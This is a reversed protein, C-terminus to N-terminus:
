INSNNWISNCNKRNITYIIKQAITEQGIVAARIEIELGSKYYGNLETGKPEIIPAQLGESTTIIVPTSKKINGAKDIAEAYISYSKNAELGKVDFSEGQIEGKQEGNVYYRYRDIGSVSDTTGAKITLSTARINEVGVTFDMPAENDKNITISGFSENGAKDKLKIGVKKIKDEIIEIPNKISASYKMESEEPIINNQEM